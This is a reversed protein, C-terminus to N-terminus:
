NPILSAPISSALQVLAAPEVPRAYLYGQAEDCELEILAEAEETTETGEAVVTIGLGHAMAIIATIVARSNPDNRVGRVFSQDIKIRDIAFRTIYSMSSFGTGFDDIAVRVGLERIRALTDLTEQAGQMLMSETIELELCHAPLGSTEIANRVAQYVGRDKFQRPSMNVAIVVERKLENILKMGEECAQKLVWEGIPVILGTEEALPIFQGPLVTEGNPRPWRILAEIGTMTRATLSVQPQFVLALESRLVASRLQAEMQLREVTAHAMDATYRNVQNKGEAKSKYLALDAQKLLTVPDGEALDSCVGVSATIYVEHSSLAIPAALAQLIQQALTEVMKEQVDCLIVMFEDGGMRAVTDTKRVAARLRQAVVILAEDGAHHGLSDNIRKFNDLDVMLVAIREGFRKARELAVELRDRFLIRSPLGTLADHTAIHRIYEQSRLRETIDFATFMYGDEDSAGKLSTVTVHVPIKAEDKRIFTWEGEDILGNRSKITLAELGSNIPQHFEAIRQEVKTAVEQPDYLDLISRKNILEGPSYWLLREAAPNVATIRGNIDTVVITFASSEIISRTFQYAQERQTQAKASSDADTLLKHIRPALPPLLCATMLSVAATALKTEGELWYFPHWLVLIAMFHTIGCAVIFTGFALFMWGFPILRRNEYVIRTLLLSIILYSLGIIADSGVHLALLHRNWLFCFGHPLYPQFFTFSILEPWLWTVSAITAAAIVLLSARVYLTKKM